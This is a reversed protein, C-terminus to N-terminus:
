YNIEYLTEFSKAFPSTISFKPIQPSTGGTKVIVRAKIVFSTTMDRNMPIMEPASITAPPLGTTARRLNVSRSASTRVSPHFILINRKQARKPPSTPIRLLVPLASAKPLHALFFIFSGLDLRRRAQTQPIM